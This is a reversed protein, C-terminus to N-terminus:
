GSWSGRGAWPLKRWGVNVTLFYLDNETYSGRVFTSRIQADGLDVYEFSFGLRTFESWDYLAGVAYRFQRDIPFATIRDSKSVPSSDYHIGAQLTWAEAVRYHLGAGLSWTDEFELPLGASARATSVPVDALTSWDEWGGSLM